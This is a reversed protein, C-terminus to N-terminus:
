NTQEMGLLLSSKKKFLANHSYSMYPWARACSGARPIMLNYIQNFGEKTMVAICKTQTFWTKSYLFLNKLFYLLKESGGGGFFNGGRPTSTM